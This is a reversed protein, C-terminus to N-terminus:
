QVVGSLDVRLQPVFLALTLKGLVRMWDPIECFRKLEQVARQICEADVALPQIVPIDCEVGSGLFWGQARKLRELSQLLEAFRGPCGVAADYDICM